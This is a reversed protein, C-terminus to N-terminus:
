SHRVDPVNRAAKRMVLSKPYTALCQENVVDDSIVQRLTTSKACMGLKKRGDTM